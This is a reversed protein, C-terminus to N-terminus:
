KYKARYHEMMETDVIHHLLKNSTDKLQVKFFNFAPYHSKHTTFYLEENLLTDLIPRIYNGLDESPIKTLSLFDDNSLIYDTYESRLYVRNRYDTDLRIAIEPVAKRSIISDNKYWILESGAMLRKPYTLLVMTNEDIVAFDSVSIQESSFAIEPKYTAMINYEGSAQGDYQLTLSIFIPNEKRIGREHFNLNVITDLAYFGAKLAKIKIM